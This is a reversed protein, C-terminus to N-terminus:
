DGEGSRLSGLDLQANSEAFTQLAKVQSVSTAASSDIGALEQTMAAIQARVTSGLGGIVAISTVAVLGLILLYESLSQGRQRKIHM